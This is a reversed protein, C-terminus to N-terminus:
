GGKMWWGCYGEGACWVGWWSGMGGWGVVLGGVGGFVRGDGGWWGWTSFFHPRLAQYIM